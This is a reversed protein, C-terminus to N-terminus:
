CVGCTGSEKPDGEVKRVRLLLSSAGGIDKVKLNNINDIFLALVLCVLVECTELGKLRNDDDRM